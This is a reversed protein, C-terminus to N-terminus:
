DLMVVKWARQFDKGLNKELNPPGREISEVKEEMASDDGHNDNSEILIFSVHKKCRQLFRNDANM